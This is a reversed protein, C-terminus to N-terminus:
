GSVTQELLQDRARVILSRVARSVAREEGDAAHISRLKAWAANVITLPDLEDRRLGLIEHPRDISSGNATQVATSELVGTAFVTSVFFEAKPPPPIGLWIGWTM